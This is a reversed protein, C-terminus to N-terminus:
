CAAITSTNEAESADLRLGERFFAAETSGGRGRSFVVSTEDEQWFERAAHQLALLALPDVLQADKPAPEEVISELESLSACTSENAIPDDEYNLKFERVAQQLALEVSPEVSRVMSTHGEQCFEGVLDQLLLEVSPDVLPLGDSDLEETAGDSPHGDSDDADSRSISACTSANTMQYEEYNLQFEKVAQQLVLEMLPDVSSVSEGADSWAPSACRSAFRAMQAEEYNIMIDEEYSLRASHESPPLLVEVMTEVERNADEPDVPKLKNLAPRFLMASGRTAKVFPDLAKGAVSEGAKHLSQGASDISDLALCLLSDEPHHCTKGDKPHDDLSGLLDLLTPPQLSSCAKQMGVMATAM